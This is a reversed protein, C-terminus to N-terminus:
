DIEEISIYGQTKYPYPKKSFPNENVMAGAKQILLEVLKKQDGPHAHLCGLSNPMPKTVDWEDWIGTHLLIGFRYNSLFTDPGDEGTTNDNGIAANGQLGKVVRLVPYPGFSKVLSEPERSNLDVTCLGTPTDGNSSLQNLAHGNKTGGRSRIKFKHLVEGGNGCKYLTAITEINRDRHLPVHLFLKCDDPIVGNFRYGDQMLLQGVKRGTEVDLIGDQRSVGEALQFLRVADRTRSDFKGNAVLSKSILRHRRLLNQLIVIDKGELIPQQVRLLRKFPAAMLWDNEQMRIIEACLCLTALQLVVLITYM